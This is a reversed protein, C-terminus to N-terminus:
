AIRPSTEPRVRLNLVFEFRSPQIVPLDAPATEVDFLSGSPALWVAHRSHSRRTRDQEFQWRSARRLEM